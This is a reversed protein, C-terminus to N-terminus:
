LPFIPFRRPLKRYFAEKELDTLETRAILNGEMDEYVVKEGVRWTKEAVKRVQIAMTQENVYDWTFENGFFVIM